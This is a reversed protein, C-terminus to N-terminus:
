SPGSQGERVDRVARGIDDVDMAMAMLALHEEYDAPAIAAKVADEGAFVDRARLWAAANADYDPHTSNVPVRAGYCAIKRGRSSTRCVGRVVVFVSM